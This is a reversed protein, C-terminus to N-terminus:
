LRFTFRSFTWGIWPLLNYPTGASESLSDALHGDLGGYCLTHSALQNRCHIRYIDMRDMTSFHIPRWSIEVSPLFPTTDDDSIPWPECGHSGEEHLVELM